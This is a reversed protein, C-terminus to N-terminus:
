WRSSPDRKIPGFGPKLELANFFRRWWERREEPPRNAFQWSLYDNALTKVRNVAEAVGRADKSAFSIIYYDGQEPDFKTLPRTCVLLAPLKSQLTWWVEQIGRVEAEIRVAYRPNPVLLAVSNGFAEGVIELRRQVRETFRVQEDSYDEFLYYVFLQADPEVNGLYTQTVWM